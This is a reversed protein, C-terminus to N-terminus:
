ILKGKQLDNIDLSVYLKITYFNKFIYKHNESNRYQKNLKEHKM